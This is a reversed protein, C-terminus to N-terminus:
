EKGAMRAYYLEFYSKTEMVIVGSTTDGYKAPIGGTYVSVRGIARGPLGSVYGSQKVGDIFQVVGDSRSGRFYVQGDNSRKIDTTMSELMKSPDRLVPSNKLAKASLTIKSTEEPDILKNGLIVVDKGLVKDKMVLNNEFTIQDNKIEIQYKITDYDFSTLTLIYTGSNLPKITFRGEEDTRAKIFDAGVEVSAIAYMVAEGRENKVKGKLTGSTQAGASLGIALIAMTILGKM